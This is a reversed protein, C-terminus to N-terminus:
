YLHLISRYTNDMKGNSFTLGRLTIFRPLIEELLNSSIFCKSNINASLFLMSMLQV